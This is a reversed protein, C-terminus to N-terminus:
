QTKPDLQQAPGLPTPDLQWGSGIANPGRPLSVFVKFKREKKIQKKKM